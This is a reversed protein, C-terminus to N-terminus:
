VKNVPLRQLFPLVDPLGNMRMLDKECSKLIAVATSYLFETGAVHHTIAM